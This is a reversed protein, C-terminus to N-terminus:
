WWPKQGCCSATAQSALAMTEHGATMFNDALDVNNMARGTAPDSALSAILNSRGVSSRSYQAAERAARRLFRRALEARIRGPFPIWAPLRVMAVVTM